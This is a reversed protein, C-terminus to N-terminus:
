YGPMGLSLLRFTERMYEKPAQKSLTFAFSRINLLGIYKLAQNEWGGADPDVVPLDLLDLM